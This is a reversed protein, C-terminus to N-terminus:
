SLVLLLIKPMSVVAVYFTAVVLIRYMSMEDGRNISDKNKGFTFSFVSDKSFDQLIVGLDCISDDLCYADLKEPSKNVVEDHRGVLMEEGCVGNEVDPAIQAVRTVLVIKQEGELVMGVVAPILTGRIRRFSDGERQYAEIDIRTPGSVAFRLDRCLSSLEVVSVTLSISTPYYSRKLQRSLDRFRLTDLHAASFPKRRQTDHAHLHLIGEGLYCHHAGSAFVCRVLQSWQSIRCNSLYFSSAFPSYRLLSVARFLLDIYNHTLDIFHITFRVLQGSPLKPGLYLLARIILATNYHEGGSVTLRRVYGLLHPTSSLTEIVADLCAESRIKLHFYFFPRCWPLWARCTLACAMVSGLGDRKGQVSSIIKGWVEVPLQPLNPPAVRADMADPTLWIEVYNGYVEREYNYDPRAGYFLSDRLSSKPIGPKLHSYLDDTWWSDQPNYVSFVM